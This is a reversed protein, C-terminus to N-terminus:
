SVYVAYMYGYGFCSMGRSARVESNKKNKNLVNRLSREPREEASKTGNSKSVRTQRKRFMIVNDRVRSPLQSRFFPYSPSPLYPSLNPVTCRSLSIDVSALCSLKAQHSFRPERSSPLVSSSSPVLHPQHLGHRCHLYNPPITDHSTEESM